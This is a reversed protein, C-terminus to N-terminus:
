RIAITPNKAIENLVAIAKEIDQLTNFYGFSFRTTGLPYTGITQHSGPACHLGSRTMLKGREFLRHSLELPAFDGLRISVVAVQKEANRPGYIHINRIRRIGEIFHDTLRM